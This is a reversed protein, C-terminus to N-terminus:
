VLGMKAAMAGAEGRSDVGLKKYVAKLHENVTCPASGLLRAMEKTTLGKGVYTLVTTETPTLGGPGDMASAAQLLMAAVRRCQQATLVEAPGATVITALEAGDVLAVSVGAVQGAVVHSVTPQRALM